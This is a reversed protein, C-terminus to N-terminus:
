KKLLRKKIFPVSVLLVLGFMGVLSMSNAVSRLKTDTYIIEIDHEGPELWFTMRGRWNPDQFEIPIQTGNDIIIWGPFYLTNEVFRTREIVHINYTRKTSNRFLMEITANGDIIQLPAIAESEMFRVSWIPSSEGTDTTGHYINTFFSDDYLRYEKPKWMQYTTIILMIITFVLVLQQKKESIFSCAFGGIASTVFVTITLLRWPFQFKQLITVTNWVPISWETMLFLSGAFVGLMAFGFIRKKMKKTTIVIYMTSVVFMWQIIGVEKSFQAGGGYNWPSYIFSLPNVMRTIVEGQTVIDRLTYKGELFAPMLFFSSLLVGLVTGIGIYLSSKYRHKTEFFVLYISYLFGIPIMMLSVANHSLLLGAVSLALLSIWIHKKSNKILGDLAFLILPIFVFAVHEGIAGRVTLDVFRYPAFTYLFGAILGATTGWRGKAWYYMSFGSLLYSVAFVLKTSSLISFGLVHFLSAVYSPLPYLFMVVPHGFGWNLNGAWRPVINGESLSQYFNAIRVVHDQGDHTVPLGPVLLHAIPLLLLLLLLVPIYKM